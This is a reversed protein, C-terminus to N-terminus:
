KKKKPHKARYKRIKAFRRRMEVDTELRTGHMEYWADDYDSEHVIKIDNWGKIAAKMHLRQINEIVTVTPGEFQEDLENRDYIRNWVRMRKLKNKDAEVAPRLNMQAFLIRLNM